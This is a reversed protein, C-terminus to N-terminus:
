SGAWPSGFIGVALEAWVLFFIFLIAGSILIREQIRRFRRLVFEISLGTILLLIGMITFDFFDWDVEDTFQMAVLPILLLFIISSLILTLRTNKM